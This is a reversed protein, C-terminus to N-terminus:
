GIPRWWPRKPSNTGAGNRRAGRAAGHPPRSPRSAAIEQCRGAAAGAAGRRRVWIPRDILGPEAGECLAAIMDFPEGAADRWAANRWGHAELGRAQDTPRVVVDGGAALVTALRDPQM